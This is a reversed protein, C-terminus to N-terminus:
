LGQANKEPGGILDLPDKIPNQKVLEMPLISEACLDLVTGSKLSFFCLCAKWLLFWILVDCQRVQNSASYTTVKSLLAPWASLQLVYKCIVSAV